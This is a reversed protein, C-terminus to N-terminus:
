FHENEKAVRVYHVNYFHTKKTGFEMIVDYYKFTFKTLILDEKKM